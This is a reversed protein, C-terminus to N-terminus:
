YINNESLQKIGDLPGTGAQYGFRNIFGMILRAWLPIGSYKLGVTQSLYTNQEKPVIQFIEDVYCDPKFVLGGHYRTILRQEPLAEIVDCQCEYEPGTMKFTAQYQDGTKVSQLETRCRVCKPNWLEMANPNSLIQWVKVPPAQITISDKLTTM